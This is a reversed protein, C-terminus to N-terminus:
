RTTGETQKSQENVVEGQCCPSYNGKCVSCQTHGHIEIPITEQNCLSCIETLKEKHIRIMVNGDGIYLCPKGDNIYIADM